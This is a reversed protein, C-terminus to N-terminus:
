ANKTIPISTSLNQYHRNQQYYIGFTCAFSPTKRGFTRGFVGWYKENRYAIGFKQAVEM